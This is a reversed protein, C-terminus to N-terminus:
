PRSERGSALFSTQSNGTWNFRIEFKDSEAGDGALAITLIYDGKEAFIQHLRPWRRWIREDNCVRIGNDSMTIVLVDLHYSLGHHLMRPLPDGPTHNGFTIQEPGHEWKVEHGKAIKTLYASCLVSGHDISVKAHLFRVPGTEWTNTSYCTHDTTLTFTILPPKQPESPGPTFGRKTPGFIGRLVVAFMGLGVPVTIFWPSFALHPHPINHARLWPIMPESFFLSWTGSAWQPADIILFCILTGILPHRVFWAKLWQWM